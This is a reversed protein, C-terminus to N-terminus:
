GEADVPEQTEVAQKKAQAAAIGDQVNGEDDEYYKETTVGPIQAFQEMLATPQLVKKIQGFGPVQQLLGSTASTCLIQGVRGNQLALQYATQAQEPTVTVTQLVVHYTSRSHASKYYSLVQPTLGFLVDEREPVGDLKFAGAPDFLVRETPANILLASHSGNGTRNSVMTILTLADPGPHRYRVAAIEADTSNPQDPVACGALALLVAGLCLLVRM